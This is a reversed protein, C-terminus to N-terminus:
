EIGGTEQEKSSEIGGNAAADLANKKAKKKLLVAVLAIVLAVVLLVSSLVLFFTAWQFKNKEEETTEDKEEEVKLQEIIVNDDNKIEDKETDTTYETEEIETLTINSVLAWGEFSNKDNTGLTFSLSFNSISSAGVSVYMTYQEWGGNETVSTTNINEFRETLGTGNPTVKLGKEGM